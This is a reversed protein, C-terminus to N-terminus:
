PRVRMPRASFLIQCYAKLYGGALRVPWEPGGHRRLFSSRAPLPITKPSHLQAFRRALGLRVDKWTGTSDNRSCTGVYGSALRVGHGMRTARYGYDLDGYLHPFAQDVPGLSTYVSRPILVVNGNFTDVDPFQDSPAVRCLRLPSRGKRRLGSYTLEGSAPDRLAGVIIEGPCAAAADLLAALGGPALVVDDNLWLLYDPSAASAVLEHALRTAGGWYLSGTGNLVHVFPFYRKLANATGDSSGDDVVVVVLGTPSVLKQGTLARLCRLTTERRNYAAIAVGVQASKAGLRGLSLM